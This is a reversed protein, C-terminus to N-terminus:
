KIETVHYGVREIRTKIIKDDVDEAYSVTLLGKKLDVKGAVGRIDNVIEEVRKKCNVCSMGDIQFTKQYRVGSLLKKKPTYGGGGCCGGQGRFHKITAYVGYGVILVIIVVIITNEM